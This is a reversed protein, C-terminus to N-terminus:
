TSSLQPTSPQPRDRVPISELLRDVAGLVSAATVTRIGGGTNSSDDDSVIEHRNGVPAFWRAVGSGFVAVTPTGVGGAIHMPGSDNCVLVDCRAILAVLERLSTRAAIPSETSAIESGYGEPDIFVIVGVGPRSALAKAVEAFRELPWRKEAVSAGPHIGVLTRVEAFVDM